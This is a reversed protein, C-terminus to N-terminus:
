SLRKLYAYIARLEDDQYAKGIDSWPLNEPYINRGYPDVRHSLLQRIGSGAVDAGIRAPEARSTVRRSRACTRWWSKLM